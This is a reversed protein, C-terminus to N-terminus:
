KWHITFNGVSLRLYDPQTTGLLLDRQVLWNGPLTHPYTPYGRDAFEMAQKTQYVPFEPKYGKPKELGDVLEKSGFTIPVADKYDIRTTVAFNGLVENPTAPTSYNVASYVYGQRVLSVVAKKDFKFSSNPPKYLGIQSERMVGGTADFTPWIPGKRDRIDAFRDAIAIFPTSYFDKDGTPITDATVSTDTLVEMLVYLNLVTRLLEVSSAKATANFNFTIVQGTSTTYKVQYSDVGNTEDTGDNPVIRVAKRKLSEYLQKAIEIGQGIGPVDWIKLISAILKPTDVPQAAFLVDADLDKDRRVVDYLSSSSSQTAYRPSGRLSASQWEELWEPCNEVTFAPVTLDGSAEGNVFSWTAIVSVPPDTPYDILGVLDNFDISNLDVTGGPADPVGNGDADPVWLKFNTKFVVETQNADYWDMDLFPEDPGYRVISATVTNGYTATITQTDSMDFSPTSLEVSTTPGTGTAGCTGGWEVEPDNAALNVDPPTFVAQFEVTTGTQVYLGELPIDQFEGGPLKFQIKDLGVVEFDLSNGEASATLTNNNADRFTMTVTPTVRWHGARGFTSTLTSTVPNSGTAPTAAMTYSAGTPPAGYSGNRRTAYQVRFTWTTSRLTFAQSYTGTPLNEATAQLTAAMSRGLRAPGPSTRTATVRATLPSTQAPLMTESLLFAVVVIGARALVRSTSCRM